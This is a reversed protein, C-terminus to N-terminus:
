ILIKGVVTLVNLCVINIPLCCVMGITTGNYNWKPEMTIQNYYM